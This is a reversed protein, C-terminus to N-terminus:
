FYFLDIIYPSEEEKVKFCRRATFFSSIIRLTFFLHLTKEKGEKLGLGWPVVQSPYDTVAGECTHAQSPGLVQGTAPGAGLSRAVALLILGYRGSAGCSM